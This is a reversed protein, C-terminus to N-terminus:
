NVIKSLKYIKESKCRFSIFRLITELLCAFISLIQIIIFITISSKIWEYQIYPYVYNFCLLYYFCIILIIFVVIIFSLYRNKIEKMIMIIEAKINEKNTQVGIVSDNQAVIKEM